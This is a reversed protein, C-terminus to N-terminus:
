KRYEKEGQKIYIINEISFDRVIVLNEDDLGQNTPKNPKQVWQKIDALVDVNDVAVGDLFYTVNIKSNKRMLTRLYKKTCDKESELLFASGQCWRKGKPAEAVFNPLKDEARLRSNVVNEYSVGLAVNTIRSQKKLRGFYPNNRKNMKPDTLAVLEVGFSGKVVQKLFLELNKM